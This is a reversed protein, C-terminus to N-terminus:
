ATKVEAGLEILTPEDIVLLHERKVEAIKTKILANDLLIDADDCSFKGGIVELLYDYNIRRYNLLRLVVFDLVEKDRNTYQALKKEKNHSQGM